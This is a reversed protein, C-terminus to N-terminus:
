EWYEKVSTKFKLLTLNCNNQQIKFHIKLSFTMYTKPTKKKFNYLRGGAACFPEEKEVDEGVDTAEQTTLNLWKSQHSTTDWQPKSKYKGSQTINLMKKM